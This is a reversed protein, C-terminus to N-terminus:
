ITDATIKILMFDINRFTPSGPARCRNLFFAHLHCTPVVGQLKAELFEDAIMYNVTEFHNHLFNRRTSPFALLTGLRRLTKSTEATKGLDERM